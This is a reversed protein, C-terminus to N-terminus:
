VVFVAAPELIAGILRVESHASCWLALAVAIAILVVVVLWRWAQRFATTPVLWTRAYMRGLARAYSAASVILMLVGVVGFAASPRTGTELGSLDM